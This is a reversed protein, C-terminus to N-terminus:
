KKIVDAFELLSRIGNTDIGDLHHCPIVNPVQDSHWKWPDDDLIRYATVEPHRSLWEAIETPRSGGPESAYDKTRWDDHLFDILGGQELKEKTSPEHDRWSSSVVIKVGANGCRAIAATAVPDPTSRSWTTGQALAQRLTLIVGDFDLFLVKM